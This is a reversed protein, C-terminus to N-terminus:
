LARSIITLDATRTQGPGGDKCCSWQYSNGTSLTFQSSCREQSVWIAFILAARQCGHSTKGSQPTPNLNLNLNM